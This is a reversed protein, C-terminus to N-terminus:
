LAFDMIFHGAGNNVMTGVFGECMYREYDYIASPTINHRDQTMWQRMMPVGKMGVLKINEAQTVVLRRGFEEPFSAANNWIQCPVLTLRQGGFRWEEFDMDWIRDATGGGYRVFEAKQKMNLAFLLEPPGYVVRHNTTSMFNTAFVGDILDDWATSMTTNITAGGNNQIAPVIGETFKAIAGDANVSEAYQGFWIRQSLSVKLQTLNRMQDREMFNTQQQNKFKMRELHNWYTQEPGIKELLNTRQVTQLRTPASFTDGGDSGVTMGNTITSGALIPALPRSNMSRVTVTAAGPTVDIATVLAQTNVGDSGRYNLKQRVFMVGIASDTVAITGAVTNGASAATGAFNTRVTLPNRSWVEEHCIVEDGPVEYSGFSMLYQLDLFQTPQANFIEPQVPLTLHTTVGRGFAAAYPSGPANTEALGFPSNNINETYTVQGAM